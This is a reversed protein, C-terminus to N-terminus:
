GFTDPFPTCRHLHPATASVDLTVGNYNANPSLKEAGPPKLIQAQGM